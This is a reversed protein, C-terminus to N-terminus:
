VRLVGLSDYGIYQDTSPVFGQKIMTQKELERFHAEEFQRCTEQIRLIESLKLHNAGNTGHPQKRASKFESFLSM